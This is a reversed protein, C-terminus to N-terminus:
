RAFPRIVGSEEILVPYGELSKPIKNKIDDTAQIVMVKLCPTTDDPMLGVYIGVVGPIAMIKEDNEDLVLNIDKLAMKQDGPSQRRSGCAPSLLM